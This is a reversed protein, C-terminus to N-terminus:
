GEEGRQLEDVRSLENEIKGEGMVIKDFPEKGITTQRDTHSVVRKCSLM